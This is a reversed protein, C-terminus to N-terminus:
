SLVPLGGIVNWSKVLGCFRQPHLTAGPFIERLEAKTLLRVEEIMKRAGEPDACPGMTGFKWRRILTVRLSVPMWHWGPVDFHPELPFWFNPSQIWYCKGVRQVESAMRRQNELTFLHEIVSNSFIVDFSRDGFEELNTADGALMRINDYRQEEAEPNVAVIQIDSRGAWGRLAWYENTGGLDLIRLPRPLPALWNEFQRFREARLKNAFSNPDDANALRRFLPLSLQM